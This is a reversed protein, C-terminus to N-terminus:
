RSEPDLFQVELFFTIAGIVRHSGNGAVPFSVEPAVEFFLWPRLINQRYRSGISYVTVNSTPRTHGYVGLDLSLASKPSLQKFLSEECGWEVGNSIESFTGYTSFRNSLTDSIKREFDFRTTEGFGDLSQWFGTESLRIIGKSGVHVLREYRVRLYYDLPWQVRLGGGFNLTSRMAQYLQYRLGVNTNNDDLHTNLAGVASSDKKVAEAENINEGTIVLRLKRSAKPLQTNAYLRVPFSFGEGETLRVATRLRVFSGPQEQDETRPDGFFNDFWIAPENFTSCLYAHYRDWFHVPAGPEPLPCLKEAGIAWGPSIVIFIAFFLIRIIWATLRHQKASFDM